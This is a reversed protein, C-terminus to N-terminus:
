TVVRVRQDPSVADPDDVRAGHPARVPGALLPDHTAHMWRDLRGRLDARTAQFSPDTALNARENPDFFLDYAEERPLIRDKWGQKLWLTKSPGDDCNCLVPHVRNGFRRIYKWRQTRVTRMPEYAAHYNVEAFVADNIEATERRIVPLFSKGQLWAPPPIQLLDCVTPFIDIQSLMADCVTGGEFGGPGRMALRVGIGGDYLNCKMEPFAIGHDTTSIVLTNKALGSADLADLILGIGWDLARATATFAAMDERTEPADALPRPPLEFAPNERAGPVRFKRHTEHFGITLLFPQRPSNKLFAVATPAVDEVHVRHVSECRDYGITEADRAIHQLGILTSTYGATRLTHLLHQHYHNLSFGRHALGLMGSSHPCMGTLLAARSPSCTPAASFAQRFLVGEKGIRHLNPTPIDFGYSQIYRGTDHSHLYIINPRAPTPRDGLPLGPAAGLNALAAGGGAVACTKLFERRAMGGERRSGGSVAHKDDTTM